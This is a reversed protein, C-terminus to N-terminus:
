WQPFTVLVSETYGAPVRLCDTFVPKSGPHTYWIVRTDAADGPVATHISSCSQLEILIRLQVNQFCKSFTWYHKLINIFTLFSRSCKWLDAASNLVSLMSIQIPALATYDAMPWNLGSAIRFLHRQPRSSEALQLQPRSSQSQPYRYSALQATAARRQRSLVAACVRAAAAAAAGGGDFMLVDFRPRLFHSRRWGFDHDFCLM